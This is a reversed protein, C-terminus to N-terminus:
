RSASAQAGARSGAPAESLAEIIPCEPITGGECEAAMASLVKEMRRLDAAKRRVEALHKLTLDKVQACTYEGGDVMGLLARVEDLTFGLERTRRIFALRRVHEGAYLRHGGASRAPRPMLGIREYYRITEINCGTRESLRGISLAVPRSVTIGAM